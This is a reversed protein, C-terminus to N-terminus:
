LLFDQGDFVKSSDQEQPNLTKPKKVPTTKM